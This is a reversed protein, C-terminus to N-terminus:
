LSKQAAQAFPLMEKAHPANQNAHSAARKPQTLTSDLHVTKHQLANGTELYISVGKANVVFKAPTNRAISVTKRM